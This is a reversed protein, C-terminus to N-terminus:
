RTRRLGLRVGVRCALFGTLWAHLNASVLSNTADLAIQADYECYYPPYPFLGPTGGPQDGSYYSIMGNAITKAARELSAISTIDLPLGHVVSTISIVVCCKKFYYM